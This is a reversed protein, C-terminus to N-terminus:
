MRSPLWTCISPFLIILVVLCACTVWYPITGKVITMLDEGTLAQLIYLNAGVPPTIVGIETCVTQFVGFWIPDYGEKVVFPLFLPVTILTMCPPDLFLGLVFYIGLLELMKVESPGPLKSLWSTLVEVLGANSFVYSFSVAGAVLMGIIGTFVTANAVAQLGEKIGIRKKSVGLILAGLVGIAGAETATCLGSYISGLVAVILLLLPWLGLVSKLSERWPIKEPQPVVDPSIRVWLLTTLILLGTLIIGPILIAIFLTGISQDAVVGYFIMGMSPPIMVALTGATALTGFAIEKQYGKKSLEYVLIPGLAGLAALSSGCIAAFLANGLISTYLLGGRFRNFLPSLANVIDTGIKSVLLIEGMLVFLPMSFFHFSGIKNYILLPVMGEKGQLLIMFSALAVSGLSFAIWHGTLLLLLLSVAVLLFSVEISM